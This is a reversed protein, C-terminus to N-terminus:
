NILLIKKDKSSYKYFKLDNNNLISYLENSYKNYIILDQFLDEVLNINENLIKEIESIDNREPIKIWNKNSYNVLRQM